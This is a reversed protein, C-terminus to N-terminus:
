ERITANLKEKLEKVVKEHATNAEADTLTRESSRYTFAYAMSKQGAPMNKGRFLDFLVVSELNAPKTQKVVQMVAEHTTPEPVIMAVDRRIAPFNPIPKFGKVTNRRALLLDLNLEALFAADRLDYQKAVPPLLQGFEGLQFKGLQITASELYLSSTETRRVFNVGRLGFQGLFEELIGKLDYSDFKADRDAGSWFVPQRQGTLAIAVRREERVNGVHVGAAAAPQPGQGATSLFVRGLEFLAVDYTKRNINHRLADLLGPLLSPRLVDMDSSLPNALRISNAGSVLTAAATSILTQGQAEQLGLGTLVRRADALQDHVADYANTGSAGRPPSAPICDVGYLRAIEEILDVERKLDVRFTPIRVSIPEAPGQPADVPRPKRRVVKLELQGLYAELRDPLVDIGLLEKVKHPRLSIQKPEVPKPYADVVGEALTGGATELILHAARRSAWDCISPDGGREFRYSSETRLGLRKSTARINQPQFYASEVLVDVTNLNIESNQGGMVGALAVPKTEDAILLMQNTLTREQGDLTKFKQGEAARYVVITPQTGPGKGALLHYDFAHLPQGVELMVFNTVDVVNNISRIGVKELMSRLWDPSAAIKVGRIVRATYRPCLEPDEIRVSVLDEARIGERASAPELSQVKSKPSQVEVDPWKLANGTVAAIERAIGIVSNLDPRNPTIELDYIVDSGARGLYESFPQGVKADERLILLGDAEDALGLEKPSCMMGHSEVGRIKGVKITFPAEGPKAPLSAGPVILPVKDGPKFNSAGCVIQRESKGDNVRCVSLKDANPHKERTIVQAVVIGDFEGGLKEVGEVELGLMTLREALEEPSWSFDVYEKLWNLTVKM